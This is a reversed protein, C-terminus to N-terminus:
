FSVGHNILGFWARIHKVSKPRPFDQIANLYKPLPKVEDETLRFGAFDIQKQSFQFKEPNLIIGANGLLVLYDVIRWWHEELDTDWLATDDM